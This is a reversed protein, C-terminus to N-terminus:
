CNAIDKLFDAYNKIMQVREFRETIRAAERGMSAQKEPSALISRIKEALDTADGTTFLGNIGDRVVDPMVGVRTAIVPVGCAMAELASRPGGESKSNMVFVRGSSMAQLVTTQDPLWGTFTIRDSSDTAHVKEEATSGLPGDGIVLMTAGPVLVLADIAELLGKNAVLRSCFVVDFRKPQGRSAMSPAHDLYFSPVVQIKESPVGWSALLEKTTHNVTRMADFSQIHSPLMWRSLARGVHESLSASKPWGVIHHIELVAPIEARHRLMRAGIGNYFPPYDHVTMVDHGYAGILESGKKRIWFPQYWLGHSSPHIFVNEFNEREGRRKPIPNPNPIPCVIDIREWHRSFEELMQMFAGQKGCALSRDGSIMLLKM